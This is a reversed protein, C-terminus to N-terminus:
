MAFATHHLRTAGFRIAGAHEGDFEADLPLKFPHRVGWEWRNLLLLLLLPPPPPPLTSTTWVPPQQAQAYAVAM